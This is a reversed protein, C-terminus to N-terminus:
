TSSRRATHDCTWARAPRWNCCTKWRTVKRAQGGPCLTKWPVSGDALPWGGGPMGEISMNFKKYRRAASRRQALPGILSALGKKAPTDAIDDRAEILELAVLQELRAMQIRDYYTSGAAIKRLSTEENPSLQARLGRDM